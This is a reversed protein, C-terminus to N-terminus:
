EISTVSNPISVSTLGSCEFASPPISKTGFPIILDKVELNNLYLKNVSRCSGNDKIQCYLKLDSIMTKQPCIGRFADRGIEQLSKPIVIKNIYHIDFELVKARFDFAKEGVYTIGEEFVINNIKKRKAYWPTKKWRFDPMRGNGSITLTGDETLEWYLGNGFAKKKAELSFPAIVCLALFIFFVRKM